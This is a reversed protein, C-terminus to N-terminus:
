WQRRMGPMLGTFYLAAAVVAVPMLAPVLANVSISLRDGVLAAVILTVVGVLVLMLWDKRAERRQFAALADAIFRADYAPPEQTAFFAALKEDATM